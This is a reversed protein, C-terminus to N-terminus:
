LVRRYLSWFSKWKCKNVIVALLSDSILIRFYFDTELQSAIRNYDAYSVWNTWCVGDSSWSYRCNNSINMEDNNYIEVESYTIASNFQIIRKIKCNM